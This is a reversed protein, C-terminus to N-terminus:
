NVMRSREAWFPRKLERKLIKGMGSKPMDDVIDISHPRKYTALHEKCLTDIEDPTVTCGDRVTVFAKPTEGWHADPVAVVACERVGPHQYIVEEVERASINMGGSIIIDKKRDVHYIFGRADARAMDGTHLWGNRITDATEAPANWYGKTVTDGRFIVEGMEGIPVDVQNDDVIRVDMTNVPRGSSGFVELRGEALAELHHQRTLCVALSGAETQGYAQVFIPGFRDMAERLREVSMPASGYGIIRLSSVDFRVLDPYDLLRYIMTPVLQVHTIKHSEIAQLFRSPEFNRADLIVFTGGVYLTPVIIHHNCGGTSQPMVVLAVTTADLEFYLAVNSGNILLNRHTMLAGKPSGTTGSTYSIFLGSEPTVEVHEPATRASTVLAALSRDGAADEIYVIDRLDDCGERASAITERYSESGFLCSTGSNKLIFRIEGPTLRPNIPVVIMGGKACAAVITLYRGCNDTLTGIRDGFRYGRSQLATLLRDSQEDLAGYSTREDGFVTAIKAPAWRAHRRFLEGINM